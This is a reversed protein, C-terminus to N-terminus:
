QPVCSGQWCPPVQSFVAGSWYRQVQASPKEPTSQSRTSLGQAGCGQACPEHESDLAGRPKAHAHSSPQDPASHSASM